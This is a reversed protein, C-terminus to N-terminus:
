AHDKIRDEREQPGAAGPAVQWSFERGPLRNVIVEASEPHATHPLVYESGQSMRLALADAAIRLRRPRDHIRLADLGDLLGRAATAGVPVLADLTALAM